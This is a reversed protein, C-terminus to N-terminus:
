EHTMLKYTNTKTVQILNKELMLRLVATLDIESLHTSSMIDRSSLQDENLLELITKMASQYDTKPHGKQSSRCVSCNGCAQANKEGFYSLLQASRCQRQNNIYRIVAEVAKKRIDNQKEIIKAIRNITKDDERPELFTIQADTDQIEVKMIGDKEFVKLMHIVEDEKLECKNAILIPNIRTQFDAIGGYTRLLTKLLLASEPHKDAYDLLGKSSSQVQVTTQHKFHHSLKVISLRDLSQLANYSLVPNLAYQKCFQDFNFNFTLESGEGYAIQFYQCLKRYLTKIFKVAPLVSVFQKFVQREDAPNCIIVARAEQGARGARGAEQFYSELSEPLDFHIVADVDAKDIGMGFANTAVMIRVSNTRWRDYHEQRLDNSMGGHYPASSYGRKNIFESLEITKRRNRVYLIVAAETQALENLLRSHKDEDMIVDYTLNPRNFSQRFIQPQQLQLESITDEVVEPRASATVAILPAEPHINRLVPIDKFAPRFDNGWQSICHAEDVAILSVQMQRIRQQIMEQKLREPSLYLFKFKGNICNDLQRNIDEWDQGGTLAMAKIGKEKLSKVQDNMLAILPSVVVCCGKRIMAPVQFCVSKGAGTPLLAFTDSGQCVAEIIKEQLPRFSDYGWYTKLVEIPKM